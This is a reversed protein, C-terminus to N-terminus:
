TVGEGGDASFGICLTTPQSSHNIFRADDACLIYRSKWPNFFAYVLVRRRCFPDLRELDENSLEQDFGPIFEWILTDRRIPRKAFLGIGHIPSPALYTEIHLM